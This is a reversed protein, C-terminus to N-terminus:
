EFGIGAYNKLGCKKTYLALGCNLSIKPAPPSPWVSVMVMLSVRHM